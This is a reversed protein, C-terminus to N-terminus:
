SLNFENINTEVYVQLVDNQRTLHAKAGPVVDGTGISHVDEFGTQGARFTAYQVFDGYLDDSAIFETSELLQAMTDSAASGVKRIGVVVEADQSYFGASTLAGGTELALGDLLAPGSFDVNEPTQYISAVLTVKGFADPLGGTGHIISAKTNPDLADELKCPQQPCAEPSNFIGWYLSVVPTTADTNDLSMSGVSITMAGGVDLGGDRLTVHEIM